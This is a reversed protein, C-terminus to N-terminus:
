EVKVKIKKAAEMAKPMKLELIGDKFSAKVKEADVEAPLPLVRKFSGYSREMRYYDKREVKEETKKEGSLTVMNDAIQVDIEDKGMGPMEAKLTISTEDEYIDVTPYLVESEEPWRFMPWRVMSERPGLIREMFRDMEDIFGPMMGRRMQMVERAKKEKMMVAVEESWEVTAMM